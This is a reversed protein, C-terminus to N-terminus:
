AAAVVASNPSMPVYSMYWKIVGDQAASGLCQVVGSQLIFETEEVTVPDLLVFGLGGSPTFVSTAGLNHYITGVADADAAVAGANLEVTAAPDTTIHQLRLNAAGGVLTTVVGVIKCRVPGGTITFLPDLGNLVAGDSKEVCKPLATFTVHAIDLSAKLNDDQAVGDHPGTYDGILDILSTSAPLQQGLATGGSAIFSALSAATPTTSITLGDLKSVQVANAIAATVLQKVYAMVTDADTVADAAAADDLAGLVADIIDVKGEVDSEAVSQTVIQKIYAMMTDTETVAGAAAADKKSGVVQNMFSNATNDAAPRRLRDLGRGLGM